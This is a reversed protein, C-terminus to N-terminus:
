IIVVDASTRCEQATGLSPTLISETGPRKFVIINLERFFPTIYPWHESIQPAFWEKM